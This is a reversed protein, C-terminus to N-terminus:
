LREVIRLFEGPALVRLGLTEVGAFDRKNHTVIYQAQGSLALELVLEDDPDRLYPRWRLHIDCEECAALFSAIFEEVEHYKYQPLLGKRHLVEEYELCLATSVLPIFRGQALDQFLRYSAGSQSQAAAVLVNTDLVVRIMGRV